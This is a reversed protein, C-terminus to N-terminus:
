TLSDQAVVIQGSFRGCSIEVWVIQGGLLGDAKVVRGRFMRVGVTYSVDLYKKDARQQPPHIIVRSMVDVRKWIGQSM